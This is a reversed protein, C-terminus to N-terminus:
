RQTVSESVQQISLKEKNSHNLAHSSTNQPTDALLLCEHEALVSETSTLCSHSRLLTYVTLWTNSEPSPGTRCSPTTLGRDRGQVSTGDTNQTHLM